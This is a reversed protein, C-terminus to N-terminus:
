GAKTGAIIVHPYPLRTRPTLVRVAFGLSALRELHRQAPEFYLRKSGSPTRTLGLALALSEQLRTWAYKWMPRTDIEKILLLGGPALRDRCRRVFSDKEAAPLYQLVDVVTVADIQTLVPFAPEPLFRLNPLAPLHRRALALKRADPDWGAVQREPSGAAMRHAFLGHGCGVDLVRGRRPVLNELYDFPCSARRLVTHLFDRFGASRWGAGGPRALEPYQRRLEGLMEIITALSSLKSLGHKRHAYVVGVEALRWGANRAKVLLEADIFSGRSELEIGDLVRRKLLKFSFNVDRVPLGFLAKILFNYVKSYVLRLFAERRNLRYGAVVDARALLPLADKLISLDYPLDSDCYLMVGLRAASFGERLTKGLGENRSRRILRVRPEKRSLAEVIEAGGDTSGDDVVIIEWDGTLSSLVAKGHAVAEAINERENYMPYVLSLGAANNAM